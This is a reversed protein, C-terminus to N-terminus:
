LLERKMENMGGLQHSDSGISHERKWLNGHASAATLWGYMLVFHARGMKDLLCVLIELISIGAM